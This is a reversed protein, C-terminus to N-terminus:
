SNLKKSSQINAEKLQFELRKSLTMDTFTIVLGDIRDDNTRYPMIRVNYWLDSNTRVETVVPILTALVKHADEQMGPYNLNNAIDTYPRGVDATRVSFIKYVPDTFRRINLERDLFLTAIETSNLLNKMDNNSQLLDNIKSQLESNVTQLEENLSQMEEKSTTLEENTSQLEENTSQLEENTSKLEEQSTQMEERTSQLEEYAKRLELGSDKEDSKRNSGKKPKEEVAPPHVDNFVVIFLNQLTGREKIHEITVDVFQISNKPGIKINRLIVPDNSSLAERFAGPLEYRLGEHAMSIINWNTKGAVPELYKGTHGTFYIIDGKENILVTAPAYNQLVFRETLTQLNDTTKPTIKVSDKSKHRYFSSPTDVPMNNSFSISRSFIKLKQDLETYLDKQTGLSESTGLLLIGEPKLAYFFLGTIKKQLEPEMYILLNRCTLIDLKTFPPDRIVNQEAFVIMERVSNSVRFGDGEPTFYNELLGASVDM